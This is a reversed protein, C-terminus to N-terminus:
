HISAVQYVVPLGKSITWSNQAQGEISAPMILKGWLDNITRQEVSLEWEVLNEIAVKPCGEVAGCGTGMGQVRLALASPMLQISFSALVIKQCQLSDLFCLSTSANSEWQQQNRKLSLVFAFILSLPMARNLQVVAPRTQFCKEPFFVKFFFFCYFCFRSVSHDLSWLVQFTGSNEFFV